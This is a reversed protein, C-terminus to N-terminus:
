ILDELQPFVFCFVVIKRQEIQRSLPSILLSLLGLVQRLFFVTRKNGSRHGVEILPRFRIRLSGLLQGLDFFEIQACIMATLVLISEKGFLDLLLVLSNEFLGLEAGGGDSIFELASLFGNTLVGRGM